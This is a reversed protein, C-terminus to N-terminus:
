GATHNRLRTTLQILTALEDPTLTSFAETIDDNHRNQINDHLQKGYDTTALLLGRLDQPDQWRRIFHRAELRETLRSLASQTLPVSENLKNLRIGDPGAHHIVHLVDYESFTLPKFEPQERFSRVLTIQARHLAEWAAAAPTTM